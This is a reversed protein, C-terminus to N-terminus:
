SLDFIVFPVSYHFEVGQEVVLLLLQGLLSLFLALTEELELKVPLHSVLADALLSIDFLSLQVYLLLYIM